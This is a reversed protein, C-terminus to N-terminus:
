QTEVQKVDPYLKNLESYHRMIDLITLRDLGSILSVYKTDWMNTVGSARVEEYAQFEEKTIELTM